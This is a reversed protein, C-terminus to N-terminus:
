NIADEILQKLNNTIEELTNSEIVKNRLLELSLVGVYAGCISPGSNKPNTINTIVASANIPKNGFHNQDSNFVHCINTGLKNQDNKKHIFKKVISSYTEGESFYFDIEVSIDIAKEKKFLGFKKQIETRTLPINIHNIEDYKGKLLKIFTLLELWGKWLKNDVSTSQKLYKIIENINDYKPPYFLEGQITELISQPKIAKTLEEACNECYIKSDEFQAFIGNSYNSFCQLSDPKIEIECDRLFQEARNISIGGFTQSDQRKFVGVVDYDSNFVPAGSIGAHDVQNGSNLNLILDYIIEDSFALNINNITAEINVGTTRENSHEPYGFLKLNLGECLHSSVLRLSLPAQFDDQKVKLIAYDFELSQSIIEATYKKAPVQYTSFTITKIDDLVSLVHNCTLITNKTVFFGSGKSKKLVNSSVATIRCVADRYDIM